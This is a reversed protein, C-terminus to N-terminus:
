NLKRIRLVDGGKEIELSGKHKLAKHVFYFDSIVRLCPKYLTKIIFIILVTKM